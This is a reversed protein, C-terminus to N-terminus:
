TKCILLNRSSTILSPLITPCAGTCTREVEDPMWILQSEVGAPGRNALPVVEVNIVFDVAVNETLANTAVSPKPSGIKGVPDELKVIVLGPPAM